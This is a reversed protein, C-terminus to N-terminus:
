CIKKNNYGYVRPEHTVVAPIRLFCGDVFVFVQLFITTHPLNKNFFFGLVPIRRERQERGNILMVNRGVGSGPALLV